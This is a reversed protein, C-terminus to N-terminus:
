DPANVRVHIKETSYGDFLFSIEYDELSNNLYVGGNKFKKSLLGNRTNSLNIWLNDILEQRTEGLEPNLDLIYDVSLIGSNFQEYLISKFQSEDFPIIWNTEQRAQAM